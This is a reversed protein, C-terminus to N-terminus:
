FSISKETVIEDASPSKGTLRAKVYAWAYATMSAADTWYMAQDVDVALIAIEPDKPGEPFWVRLGETWLEKLKQTDEVIRAKGCISVYEFESPKAYSVLVNPNNRIEVLKLSRRFTLFWLVGDFNTQLCGMPRSDLAGDPTVTILLASHSSKILEWIREYDAKRTPNNMQPTAQKEQMYRRGARWTGHSKHCSNATEFSIVQL